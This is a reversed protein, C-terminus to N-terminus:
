AADLYKAECMVLGANATRQEVGWYGDGAWFLFYCAGPGSFHIRKKKLAM